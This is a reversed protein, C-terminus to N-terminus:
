CLLHQNMVEGQVWHFIEGQSTQSMVAKWEQKLSAQFTSCPNEHIQLMLQELADKDRMVLYHLNAIQEATSTIWWGLWLARTHYEHKQCATRCITKWLGYGEEALSM